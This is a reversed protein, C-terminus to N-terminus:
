YQLAREGLNQGKAVAAAQPSVPSASPGNNSAGHHQTPLARGDHPNKRMHPPRYKGNTEGTPRQVASFAKEEDDDEGGDELAMNKKHGESSEIEKALQLARHERKKYDETSGM